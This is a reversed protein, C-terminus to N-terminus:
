AMRRLIDSVEPPSTQAAKSFVEKEAELWAKWRQIWGIDDTGFASGDEFLVAELSIRIAAQQSYFTVAKNMAAETPPDVHLGGAELALLFSVVEASHPRLNTGPRLTSFNFVTRPQRVVWGDAGTCYWVVSYAIVEQDTDNKIVVTYPLIADFEMARGPKFARAFDPHSWSLLVVGQSELSSVRVLPESASMMPMSLLLAVAIVLLFGEM